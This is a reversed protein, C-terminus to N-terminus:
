YMEKLLRLGLFDSPALSHGDTGSRNRPNAIEGAHREIADLLYTVACDLNRTRMQEFTELIEALASIPQSGGASYM